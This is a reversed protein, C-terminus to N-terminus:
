GRPVAAPTGSGSRAGRSRRDALALDQLLALADGQEAVAVAHLDGVVRGLHEGVVAEVGVTASPRKALGSSPSSTSRSAASWSSRRSSRPSRGRRRSRRRPGRARRPRRRRGRGPPAGADQADAQGVAVDGVALGREQALLDPQGARVDGLPDQRRQAIARGDASPERTEPGAGHTLSIVHRPHEGPRCTAALAPRHPAHYMQGEALLSADAAAAIELQKLPRHLQKRGM